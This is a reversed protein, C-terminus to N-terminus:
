KALLRKTITKIWLDDPTYKTTRSQPLLWHMLFDQRLDTFQKPDRLKMEFEKTAEQRKKNREQPGSDSEGLVEKVQSDQYVNWAKLASERWQKEVSPDLPFSSSDIAAVAENVTMFKKSGQRDKLLRDQKLTNRIQYELAAPEWKKAVFDAMVKMYTKRTIGYMNDALVDTIVKASLDKDFATLIFNASDQPLKIAEDRTRLIAVPDGVTQALVSDMNGDLIAEKLLAAKLNDYGRQQLNQGAQVFANPGTGTEKMANPIAMAADPLAGVAESLAPIVDGAARTLQEKITEPKVPSLYRSNGPLAYEAPLDSWEKPLEGTDFYLGTFNYTKM